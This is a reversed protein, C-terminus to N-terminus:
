PQKRTRRGVMFNQGLSAMIGPYCQPPIAKMHEDEINCLEDEEAFVLLVGRGSYLIDPANTIIERWMQRCQHAQGFELARRKMLQRLRGRVLKAMHLRIGMVMKVMLANQVLRNCM